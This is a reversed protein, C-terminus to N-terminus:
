VLVARLRNAVKEQAIERISKAILLKPDRSRPYEQRGGQSFTGYPNRMYNYFATIMGERSISIRELTVSEAFRGTRLNLVDKRGGTGMNQKVQEVLQAKILVELNALSYYNGKVPILRSIQKKVSKTAVSVKPKPNTIKPLRQLSKTSEVREEKFASSIRHNIDQIFSRSSTYSKLIEAIEKGLPGELMKAYLAQNEFRDQIIVINASVSLLFSELDKDLAAEIQPGYSSGAALRELAAEVQTKVKSISTQNQQLYSTDIGDFSLNDTMSSLASLLKKFKEGLPTRLLKSSSFIHGVDFGVKYNTDKYIAKNLFKSIETNLFSRFLGDYASNYNKYLAGIVENNKTVTAPLSESLKTLDALKNNIYIVGNAKIDITNSHKSRIFNSIKTKLEQLSIVSDTTLDINHENAYAITDADYVEEINQVIVPGLTINLVDLTVPIFHYSTDLGERELRTTTLKRLKEGIEGQTSM